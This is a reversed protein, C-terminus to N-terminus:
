ISGHIKNYGDYHLKKIKLIQPMFLLLNVLRINIFVMDYDTLSEYM